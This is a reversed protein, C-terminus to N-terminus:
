GDKALLQYYQAKDFHLTIAIYKYYISVLFKTMIIVSLEDFYLLNFCIIKIDGTSYM